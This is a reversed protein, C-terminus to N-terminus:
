PECTYCYTVMLHICLLQGNVIQLHLVHNYKGRKDFKGERERERRALDEEPGQSKRKKMSELQKPQEEWWTGSSWREYSHDRNRKNRVPPTADAAFSM